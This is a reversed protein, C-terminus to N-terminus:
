IKHKFGENQEEIPLRKPGIKESRFLNSLTKSRKGGSSLFLRLNKPFDKKRETEGWEEMSILPKVHHMLNKAFKSFIEPAVSM